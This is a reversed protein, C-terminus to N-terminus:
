DSGNDLSKRRYDRTSVNHQINTTHSTNPIPKNLTKLVYMFLRNGGTLQQTHNAM